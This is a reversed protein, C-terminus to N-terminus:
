AAGFLALGLRSLEATWDSIFPIGRGRSLLLLVLLAWAGYRNVQAALAPKEHLLGMLAHSGDLPPLPILNFLFLGWNLAIGLYLMRWLSDGLAGPSASPALLAAALSLLLALLANALPGALAILLSDLYPRRLRSRDFSVPKAWGFGAILIFLFGLPDIHELPNLTLRGQAKATDDGLRYAAFAHAAEHVSLGLVIGPLLDLIRWLDFGSM